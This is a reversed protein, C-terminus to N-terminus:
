CLSIIDLELRVRLVPPWEMICVIISFLSCVGDFIVTVFGLLVKQINGTLANWENTDNADLVLQLASFLGGMLDLIIQIINWGETSQRHYNLLIQPIYKLVTVTLKVFGLVYIWYYYTFYGNSADMALVAILYGIIGTITLGVNVLCLKSPLQKKGDYWAMQCLPFITLFLAHVAFFVDNIQVAPNNGNHNNRYARRVGEDYYMEVSYISLAIYGILDYVLMDSALGITCKRKYNLVVQPYFSITWARRIQTYIILCADVVFEFTCSM